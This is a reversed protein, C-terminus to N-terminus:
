VCCVSVPFVSFLGSFVEVRTSTLPSLFCHSYSLCLVRLCQERDKSHLLVRLRSPSSCFDNGHPVPSFGSYRRSPLLFFCLLVCTSRPLSLFMTLSNLFSSSTNFPWLFWLLCVGMPWLQFLRLLLIILMPLYYFALDMVGYHYLLIQIFLLLLLPLEEKCFLELSFMCFSHLFYFIM